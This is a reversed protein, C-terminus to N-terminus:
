ERKELIKIKDSKEGKKTEEKEEETKEEEKKEKEEKKKLAKEKTKKRKEEREKIEKKKKNLKDEVKKIFEEPKKVNSVNYKNEMCKKLIEIKNKIGVRAILVIEEKPNFGELEKVNKVLIVKFGNRDLGKVSKPSCYGLSPQKRKGRYKKRLKSQYGKPQRWKIELKPRRWAEQRVFDPKKAKRENRLELMEKEVM